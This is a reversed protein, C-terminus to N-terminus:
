EKSRWDIPGDRFRIVLRGLVLDWAKVFYDFAKEWLDGERWGYHHMLVNTREADLQKFHVVVWTKEERIDALSPPNNWEFSLMTEPDYSLVKVGESGRQGYPADPIFYIEYSGGIALHVKSDPAFFTRVGQDTTWASWVEGLPAEITVEKEIVKM